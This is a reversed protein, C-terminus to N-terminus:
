KDRLYLKLYERLLASKIVGNGIGSTFSRSFDGFVAEEWDIIGVIDFTKPNLIFNDWLDNQNWGYMLGPKDSKKDKMNRIEIPDARGVIYLFRALQRAIKDAHATQMERTLSHFGIGNICEYKRVALGDFNLIEMKPIKIPSIARLADTIAKERRAVAVGDGNLPFKFVFKDDVTVVFNICRFGYTYRARPHVMNSFSKAFRTWRRIPHTLEMRLAKRRSRTPVFLCLVNVLFKKM